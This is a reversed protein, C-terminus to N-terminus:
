EFVSSSSVSSSRSTCWGIAGARSALYLTSYLRSGERVNENRLLLLLLLLLVLLGAGGPLLILLPLPLLLVCGNHRAVPM